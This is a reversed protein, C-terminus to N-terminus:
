AAGNGGIQYGVGRVTRILANEYGTDNKQTILQHIRRGRKDDNRIKAEVSARIANFDACHFHPM